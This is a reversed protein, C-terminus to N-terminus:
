NAAPAADQDAREAQHDSIAPGAAHFPALFIGFPLPWDM